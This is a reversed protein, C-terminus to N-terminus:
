TYLECTHLHVHLFLSALNLISHLVKNEESGATQKFFSFVVSENANKDM